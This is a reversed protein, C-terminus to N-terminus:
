LWCGLFLGLWIFDLIMLAVYNRRNLLGIAAPVLSNQSRVTRRSLMFLRCVSPLLVDRSHIVRISITYM